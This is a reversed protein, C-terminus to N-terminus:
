HAGYKFSNLVGEKIFVESEGRKLVKVPKMKRSQFMKVRDRLQCISM